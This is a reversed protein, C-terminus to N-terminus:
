KGSYSHTFRCSVLVHSISLFENCRPCRPKPERCLLYRHSALTHGTRLRCLTVERRSGRLASPWHALRPKMAKIKSSGTSDWDEQWKDRLLSLCAAFFDTAPLPLFSSHRARSARKSAEDTKENGAIGVHSPIWCFIVYKRARDLSTLLVLIDQIVSDSTNFESLM